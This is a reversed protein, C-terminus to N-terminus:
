GTGKIVVIEDRMEHHAIGCYELCRVTYTGPETFTHILSTPKEMGPMLMMTFLVKGSPHYVAFGHMTDLSKGSFRVPRGVEITAEAFDFVWSKATFNVDIIDQGSTAAKATSVTPMYGISAINVGVFVLVVLGIWMGELRVYKKADTTGPNSDVFSKRFVVYFFVFLFPILLFLVMGFAGWGSLFLSDLM